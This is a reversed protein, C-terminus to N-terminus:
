LLQIIGLLPNRNLDVLEYLYYFEIEAQIFPMNWMAIWNLNGFGAEGADLHGLSSITLGGHPTVLM